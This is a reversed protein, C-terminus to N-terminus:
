SIFTLYSSTLEGDDTNAVPKLCEDVTSTHDINLTTFNSCVDKAEETQDSYIPQLCIIYSTSLELGGLCEAGDLTSMTSYLLTQSTGEGNEDDEM